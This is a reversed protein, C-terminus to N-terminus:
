GDPFWQIYMHLGAWACALLAVTFGLGATWSQAPGNILYGEDLPMMTLYLQSYGYIVGVSVAAGLLLTVAPALARRARATALCYGLFTLYAAALLASTPVILRLASSFYWPFIRDAPPCSDVCVFQALLAEGLGLIVGAIVACVAFFRSLRLLAALLFRL